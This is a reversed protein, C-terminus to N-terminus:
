SMTDQPPTKDVVGVKLVDYGAEFHAQFAPTGATISEKCPFPYQALIKRSTVDPAHDFVFLTADSSPRQSVSFNITVWVGQQPEALPVAWNLNLVQISRQADTARIFHIQGCTLPLHCPLTFEDPFSRGPQSLHCEIPSRGQLQSHHRSQRYNHFFLASRQRVASLDPLLVKNWVFQAYDQHFREVFGNSEPHYFPSFVLQTGVMLALRVIQGLIGAHTYGGCFCGENDVQQFTPIGQEQWVGVLFKCANHATRNEFQMGSPYRSVIDLANFCAISTGGILYRPLIDAQILQHPETVHLQPYQVDPVIRKQRPQVMGAARLEREISSISPLINLRHEQLHGQIAYAGIYAMEDQEQALVELESRTQRIQQRLDAPLKTPPHKPTRSQDQLDEWNQRQQFRRWWKKAWSRSRGVEKAAQRLSKGSRILHVLTKRLEYAQTTM